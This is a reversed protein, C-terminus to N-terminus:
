GSLLQQHIYLNFIAVHLIMASKMGANSKRGLTCYKLYNYNTYSYLQAHSAAKRLNLCMNSDM